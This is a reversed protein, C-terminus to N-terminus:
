AGSVDGRERDGDMKIYRSPYVIFDFPRLKEMAAMTVVPGGISALLGFVLQVGLDVLGMKLLIIRAGAAFITHMLFVPFLNRACLSLLRPQDGRLSYTLASSVVCICALSGVAFSAWSGFGRVYAVISLPLFALGFVASRGGLREVWGLTRLCMGAVFWVGNGMISTVAFPLDEGTGLLSFVKLLFAFALMCASQAEDKATPILLFLLFLTYLFWYPSTPSLLLTALPDPAPINVDDSALLKMGLTILTFAVYPVGLALLKKKVNRRWVGPFNARANRQYLYGSCIFFLPVHFTYITAQFWGYLDDPSAIGSRVMSQSLHGLVVMLCAFSKVNDVWTERQFGATM